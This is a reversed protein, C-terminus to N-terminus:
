FFKIKKMGKYLLKMGQSVPKTEQQAKMEYWAHLVLEV